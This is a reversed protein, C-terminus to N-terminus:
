PTYAGSPSENHSRLSNRTLKGWPKLLDETWKGEASARPLLMSCTENKDSVSWAVWSIKRSEMWDVYTNWEEVWADMATLKQVAVNPYLFQSELLSPLTPANVCGHSMPLLM